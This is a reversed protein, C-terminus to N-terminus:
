KMMESLVADPDVNGRKPVVSLQFGLPFMDKFVIRKGSVIREETKGSNFLSTTWSM